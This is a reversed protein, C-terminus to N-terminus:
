SIKKHNKFFRYGILTIISSSGIATLFGLGYVMKSLWINGGAEATVTFLGWIGDVGYVIEVGMNIGGWAQMGGIFFGAVAAGIASTFLPVIRPLNMGYLLPEDIGLFSSIISPKINKRFESGKKAVMILALAAGIQAAGGMGLLPYITNLHIDGNLLTVYIPILSSQLGFMLLFLFGFTLIMDGFPAAQGQTVHYFL